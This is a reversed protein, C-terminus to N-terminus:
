QCSAGAISIGDIDWGMAAVAEDSGFRFRLTITQGNLNPGLNIVSNIYGGSAGSWAFRGALPNSADGSIKGTYGGSTISGGVHSDTVDLFEGGSINPSSIELVGGDWFIGDSFESNFNNRFTLIPSDSNITVNMRDLVKDSIGDQDPVFANNPASDSNMTTTVFM